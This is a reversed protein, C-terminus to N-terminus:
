TKRSQWAVERIKVNPADFFIVGEKGWKFQSSYTKIPSLVSHTYKELQEQVQLHRKVKSAKPKMIRDKHNCKHSQFQGLLRFALPNFQCNVSLHNAGDINNNQEQFFTLYTSYIKLQAVIEKLIISKGSHFKSFFNMKAMLFVHCITWM